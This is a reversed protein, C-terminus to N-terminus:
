YPGDLVRDRTVTAVDSHDDVARSLAGV